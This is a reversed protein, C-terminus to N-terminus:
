SYTKPDHHEAMEVRVPATTGQLVPSDAPPMFVPSQRTERRANSREPTRSAPQRRMSARDNM